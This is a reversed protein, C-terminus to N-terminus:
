EAKTAVEAVFVPLQPTDPSPSDITGPVKKPKSGKEARLMGVPMNGSVPRCIGRHNEHQNLSKGVIDVLGSQHAICIPM